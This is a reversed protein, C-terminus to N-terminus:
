TLLFEYGLKEMLVPDLFTNIRGISDSDLEQQWKTDRYYDKYYELDRGLKRDVTKTAEIVQEFKEEKRGTMELIDSVASEQDQVFDESKVFRMQVGASAATDFYSRMKFNWLEVPNEILAPANERRVTIWPRTVFEAFTSPRNQLSHYPRRALSLLWSYPNKVLFVIYIDNAETLLELPPAAHKWGFIKWGSKEFISDNIAERVLRREMASCEGMKKIARDILERQGEVLQSAVGPLVHSSSNRKLVAELANTGTNREGYIKINV